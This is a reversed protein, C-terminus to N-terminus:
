IDKLDWLAMDLQTPDVQQLPHTIKHKSDEIKEQAKICDQHANMVAMSAIILLLVAIVGFAAMLRMDRTRDM